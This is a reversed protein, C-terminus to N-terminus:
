ANKDEVIMIKANNETTELDARFILFRGDLERINIGLWPNKPNGGERRARQYACFVNRARKEISVFGLRPLIKYFVDAKKKDFVSNLDM